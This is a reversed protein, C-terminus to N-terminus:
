QEAGTQLQAILLLARDAADQSEGCQRASANEAQFVWQMSADVDGPDSAFARQNWRAKSAEMAAYLKQLQTVPPSATLNRAANM